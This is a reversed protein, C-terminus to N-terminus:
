SAMKESYKWFTPFLNKRTWLPKQTRPQAPPHQKTLKPHTRSTSLNTVPLAPFALKAPFKMAVNGTDHTLPKLSNASVPFHNRSITTSWIMKSVNRLDKTLRGNSHQKVGTFM